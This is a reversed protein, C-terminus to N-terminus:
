RRRGPSRSRGRKRKRTPGGRPDTDRSRRRDRERREDRKDKREDRDDRRGNRGKRAGDRENSTGERDKRAGEREKRREDRESKRGVSGSRERPSKSNRTNGPSFPEADPDLKISKKVRGANRKEKAKWQAIREKLPVVSRRALVGVKTNKYKADDAIGVLRKELQETTKRDRPWVHVVRRLFYLTNEKLLMSAKVKLGSMIAKQVREMWSKFVAAYKQHTFREDPKHFSIGFSSKTKCERNYTEESDAWKGFMEIMEGIFRGFRSSENQTSGGLLSNVTKLANSFFHVISFYKTDLEIIERLFRACYLADTPSLTVRPLLCHRIFAFSTGGRNKISRFWGEKERLLREHVKAFNDSQKDQEENLRKLTKQMREGEKKQKAEKLAKISERVEAAVRQYCRKPVQLDYLSLSWFTAYFEPSLADWTEGPLLERCTRALPSRKKNRMALLMQKARQEKRRLQEEKSESAAPGKPQEDSKADSGEKADAGPGDSPQRPPAIVRAVNLVPRAIFFAAAPHIHYKKVLEYLTPIARAYAGNRADTIHARVFSGLQILAGQCRDLLATILGVQSTETKFLIHQKQQVMLILLPVVLNEDGQSKGLLCEVLVRTPRKTKKMKINGSEAELVPGGMLGELQEVELEEIYDIGSMNRVLECLVEVDLTREMKLQNVVYQVVATLEIDPYKHFLQGTFTSLCRFWGALNTGNLKLRESSLRLLLVYVLCDHTMPHFYKFSEIVPQVQNGYQEVQALVEDLVVLPNSYIFKALVRSCERFNSGSIRKRYYKTGQIAHARQAAAEPSAGYAVDKWYGYLKFRDQYPLVSLMSWLDSTLGPNSPVMAFAPLISDCIIETTDRTLLERGSPEGSGAAVRKKADVFYVRLVRCLKSLLAIDSSLHVTLNRLLPAVAAPMEAVTACPRLEWVKIGVQLAEGGGVVEGEEGPAASGAENEDDGDVDMPAPGERRPGRGAGSAAEEGLVQFAGCQSAYVPEVVRSVIRCIARAVRGDSAPRIPGLRELVRAARGWDGMELLGVLLQVKQNGRSFKQQTGRFDTAKNAKLSAVNVKKARRIQERVFQTRSRAMADDAPCLYPWLRDLAVVGRAVLQCAARVLSNPATRGKGETISAHPGDPQYCQLKFGLVACVASPRFRALVACLTRCAGNSKPVPGDRCATELSEIAVDVVRNPDLDFCGILSLVRGELAGALKLPAVPRQRRRAVAFLECILKAYGENEERLLNFKRQVFIDKTRLVAEKRKIKDATGFGGVAELLERPLRELLMWRPVISKSLLVRAFAVLGERADADLEEHHLVWVSEVLAARCTDDPNASSVLEATAEARGAGSVAHLVLELNFTKFSLSAASGAGGARAEAALKAYAEGLKTKSKDWQAAVGGTVYQKPAASLM